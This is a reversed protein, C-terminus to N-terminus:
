HTLFPLTASAIPSEGKYFEVGLAELEKARHHSPDRTIARIHYPSPKGDSSPKLLMKVVPIGQAGTAGIVLIIRKTSIPSTSM